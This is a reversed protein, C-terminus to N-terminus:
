FVLPVAPSLYVLEPDIYIPHPLHKYIFNEYCDIQNSPCARPIIDLM